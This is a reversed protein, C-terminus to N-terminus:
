QQERIYPQCAISFGFTANDTEKEEEVSINFSSFWCRLAFSNVSRFIITSPLSNSTWWFTRAEQLKYKLSRTFLNAKAEGEWWSNIWDTRKTPRMQTAKKEKKREKKRKKKGKGEREQLHTFVKTGLVPGAAMGEEEREFSHIQFRLRFTLGEDNGKRGM